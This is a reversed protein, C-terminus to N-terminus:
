DVAAATPQQSVAADLVEVWHRVPIDAGGQLHTICGINASVIVEPGAAMLHSMKRDRLTQATEAQLVSYTGASGCCMHSEQAALTVEFGLERLGLLVEDKLGQGHQLTCPPHYVLRGAEQARQTDLQNKLAAVL